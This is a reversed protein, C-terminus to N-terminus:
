LTIACAIKMASDSTELSVAWTTRKWRFSGACFLRDHIPSILLCSGLQLRSTRQVDCSCGSKFRSCTSTCTCHCSTSAWMYPKYHLGLFPYTTIRTEPLTKCSQYFEM